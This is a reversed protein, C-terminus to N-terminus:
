TSFGLVSSGPPSCDMPDYLTLCLQLSLVCTCQSSPLLSTGSGMDQPGWAWWEEASCAQQKPESHMVLTVLKLGVLTENKKKKLKFLSRLRM